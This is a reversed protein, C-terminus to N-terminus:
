SLEHGLKHDFARGMVWSGCEWCRKFEGLWGDAVSTLLLHWAPQNADVAQSVAGLAVPWDEFDKVVVSIRRTEPSMVVEANKAIPIQGTPRTSDMTRPLCQFVQHIHGIHYPDTGGLFGHSAM